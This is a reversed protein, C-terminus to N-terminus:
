AALPMMFEEDPTTLLKWVVRANKNALAVNAKHFGRREVLKQVWRSRPDAKARHHHIISRAGHVLLMRLYRNGAKSIGLLKPKGGTTHQRPVLGLYAAFQRGNKFRQPESVSAIIATALLPGVGPITALRQCVPHESYIAKIRKNILFLREELARFEDRPAHFIEQALPSLAAIREAFEERLWVLFRTVGKACVIGYELLLGRIENIIATRHQVLRERVRHLTQIDLQDASKIPVARVNPRSAAEAIAAADNYDNKTGRRYAVVHQAPNLMVQHGLEKLQRAWHQSGSCSEMAVTCAPTNAFFRSVTDRHLRKHLIQRGREDTGCLEFSYKSIDMGIITTSTM